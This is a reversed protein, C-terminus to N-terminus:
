ILANAAFCAAKSSLVVSRQMCAINHQGGASPGPRCAPRAARGCAGAPRLRGAEAQGSPACAPGPRGAAPRGSQPFDFAAPLVCALRGVAYATGCAHQLHLRRIAQKSSYCAAPGNLAPWVMYDCHLRIAHTASSTSHQKSSTYM